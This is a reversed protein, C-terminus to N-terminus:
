TKTSGEQGGERLGMLYPGAEEHGKMVDMSKKEKFREKRKDRTLWPYCWLRLSPLPTGHLTQVSFLSPSKM